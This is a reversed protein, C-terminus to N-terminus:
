GRQTGLSGCARIFDNSNHIYGFMISTRWLAQEKNFEGHTSAKNEVATVGERICSCRYGLRSMDSMGCPSFWLCWNIAFGCYILQWIGRDRLVANLQHTTVAVPETDLPKAEDPFDLHSEYFGASGPFREGFLLADKHDDPSKREDAHPARPMGPPEAGAISLTRRYGPYKKAYNESSAVHIVPLGAKRAASLIPPIENKILPVTRAAWEAMLMVGGAPGDPKWALEPSIGVNWIHMLVLAIEEPPVSIKVSEGWGKFGLASEKGRSFDVPYHRYYEGNLTLKRTPDISTNTILKKNVPQADIKKGKVGVGLATSAAALSTGGLFTRRKM